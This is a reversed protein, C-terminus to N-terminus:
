VFDAIAEDAESIDDFEDGTAVNNGGAFADGDRAFQIGRLTANIRQGYGNDQAWLEISANVYCGSYIVGDAEVLPSKDRNIVTPRVKNGASIAMNGEFGAYEAKADGDTMCLKNAAKLSKLKVDAKAGWKAKAVAEIAEQIKAIQPDDKALLLTASFRGFQDPEFVNPFAIRPLKLTLKM